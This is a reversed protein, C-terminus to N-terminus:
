EGEIKFAAGANLRKIAELIDCYNYDDKQIIMGEHSLYFKEPLVLKAPEVSRLAAQWAAKCAYKTDGSNFSCLSYWEEFADINTICEKSINYNEAKQSMDVPEPNLLEDRLKELAAVRRELKEFDKKYFNQAHSLSMSEGLGTDDFM